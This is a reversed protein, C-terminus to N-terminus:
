ECRYIYTRPAFRQLGGWIEGGNAQAPWTSPLACSQPSLKERTLLCKSRVAIKFGGPLFVEPNRSCVEFLLLVLRDVEELALLYRPSQGPVQDVARSQDLSARTLEFHFLAGKEIVIDPYRAVEFAHVNEITRDFAAFRQDTVTEKFVRWIRPLSHGLGKREESTMTLLLHGKLFLEIAHHLLNGCVSMAKTWFAFRGAAYYDSAAFFYANKVRERGISM